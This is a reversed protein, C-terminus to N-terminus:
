AKGLKSRRTPGAVTALSPAPLCMIVTQMQISAKM